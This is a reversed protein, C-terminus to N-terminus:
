VHASAVDPQSPTECLGSRPLSSVGQMSVLSLGPDGSGWALASPSACCWLCFLLSLHTLRSGPGLRRYWLWVLISRDTGFLQGHEICLDSLWRGPMICRQGGSVCTNPLKQTSDFSFTRLERQSYAPLYLIVVGFVVHAANYDRKTKSPPSRALARVGLAARFALCMCARLAAVFSRLLRSTFM